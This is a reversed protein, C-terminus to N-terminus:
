TGILFSIEGYLRFAATCIPRSLGLRKGSEDKAKGKRSSLTACGAALGLLRAEKWGSSFIKVVVSVVSRTILQFTFPM